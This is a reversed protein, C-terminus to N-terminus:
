TYYPARNIVSERSVMLICNQTAMFYSLVPTFFPIKSFIKLIIFIESTQHIDRGREEIKEAHNM